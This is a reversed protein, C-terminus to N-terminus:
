STARPVTSSFSATRSLQRLSITERAPWWAASPSQQDRRLSVIGHHMHRPPKTGTSTRASTIKGGRHKGQLRHGYFHRSWQLRFHHQPQNITYGGILTTRRTQHGTRWQHQWRTTAMSVPASFCAQVTNTGVDIQIGYNAFRNIALGRIVCNPAVLQLGSAAAANTGVLQVLPKDAYGPQTAGNIIVPASIPPLATAPVISFPATGSINFTITNWDAANNANTIAWRLSGDGSDNVNTVTFLRRSVGALSRSSVPSDVVTFGFSTASSM